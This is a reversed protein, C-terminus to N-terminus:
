LSFRHLLITKKKVIHTNNLHNNVTEKEHGPIGGETISYPQINCKPEAPPPPILFVRILIFILYSATYSGPLTGLPYAKSPPWTWPEMTPKARGVCGWSLSSSTGVSALSYGLGNEVIVVYCYRFNPLKRHFSIFETGPNQSTLLM